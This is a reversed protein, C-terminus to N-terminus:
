HVASTGNLSTCIYVNVTRDLRYPHPRDSHEYLFDVPLLFSLFNSLNQTCHIERERVLACLFNSNWNHICRMSIWETQRTLIHFQLCHLAKNKIKRWKWQQQRANLQFLAGSEYKIRRHTCKLTFQIAIARIKKNSSSSTHSFTTTCVAGFCSYVNALFKWLLDKTICLVIKEITQYMSAIQAETGNGKGNMPM